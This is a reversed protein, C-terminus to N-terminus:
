GGATPLDRGASGQDQHLNERLTGLLDTANHTEAYKRIQILGSHPTGFDKYDFYKFYPEDQLGVSRNIQGKCYERNWTKYLEKVVAVLEGALASSDVIECDLTTSWLRAFKALSDYYTAVVKHTPKLELKSM